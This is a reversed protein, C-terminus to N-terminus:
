PPVSAARLLRLLRLRVQPKSLAHACRACLPLDFGAEALEPFVFPRLFEESGPPVTPLPCASCRPFEPSM